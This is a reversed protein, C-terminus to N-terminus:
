REMLTLEDSAREIAKQMKHWTREDTELMRATHAIYVSCEVWELQERIQDLADKLQERSKMTDAVAIADAKAPHGKETNRATLNGADDPPTTRKKQPSVTTEKNSSVATKQETATEEQIVAGTASPMTQPTHRAIAGEQQPFTMWIALCVLAAVSAAVARRVANRRRRRMSVISDYLATEDETLWREIEEASHKRESMVTAMAREAATANSDRRILEDLQREEAVTTLGDLYRQMLEDKKKM